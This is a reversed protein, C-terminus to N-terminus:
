DLDMVFLNKKKAKAFERRLLDFDIKSIDFRKEFDNDKSTQETLIYGGLIGNIQVMHDVTDM